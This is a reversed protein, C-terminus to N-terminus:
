TKCNLEKHACGNDRAAPDSEFFRGAVNGGARGARPEGREVVAQGDDHAFVVARWDDRRLCPTHGAANMLSAPEAGAQRVHEFVHQEFARRGPGARTDVLFHLFRATVHVGVRREVPGHIPDVNGVSARAHGDVDQAVDHLVRRQRRVFQALFEVHDAAFHVHALVIRRAAGAAAQELGGVRAARIAERDNAIRVNEVLQLGIINATIIVLFVNGIVGAEDDRAVHLRLVDHRLDVVSVPLGLGLRQRRDHQRLFGPLRGRPFDDLFSGNFQAMQM